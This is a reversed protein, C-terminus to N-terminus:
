SDKVVRSEGWGGAGDVLRDGGLCLTRVRVRAVDNPTLLVGFEVRDALPQGVQDPALSSFESERHVGGIPEM